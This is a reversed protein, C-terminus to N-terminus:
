PAAPKEAKVLPQYEPHREIYAAVFPCLAVVALHEARAYELGAHALVDALGHHRLAPPVETHVFYITAPARRYELVARQGNVRIFFQRAKPDHEVAIDQPNPSTM